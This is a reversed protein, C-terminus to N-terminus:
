TKLNYNQLKEKILYFHKKIKKNESKTSHNKLM